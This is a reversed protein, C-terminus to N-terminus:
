DMTFRLGFLIEHGLTNSGGDFPQGYGAFRYGASFAVNQTFHYSLGAGIQWAFGTEDSDQSFFGVGLGGGIYPKLGDFDYIDWFLNFLLTHVGLEIGYKESAFRYLYEIEARIPVADKFDYGVAGGIFGTGIWNYSKGYGYGSNMKLGTWSPGGKAEVYLPIAQAMTPLLCFSLLAFFVVLRKKM